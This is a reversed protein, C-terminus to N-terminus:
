VTQSSTQEVIATPQKEGILWMELLRYYDDLSARDLWEDPAHRGGGYPELLICPIDYVAFHRADTGGFSDQYQPETGHVAKYAALFTQIAPHTKDFIVPEGTQTFLVEVRSAVALEHIRRDFRTLESKDFSRVDMLATAHDAVQNVAQGGNIANVSLTTGEPSVFPFEARIAQCVDLIRQVANDGEQPRSGHATKGHAELKVGYFGKARQEIHWNDGGDPIFVVHPRIGSKLIDVMSDGGLEEDTTFLLGINLEGLMDAHRDLFELYCAAAFKMDYVGRGILKSGNQRLTYLEHSGPVVDLHAVLLIDPTKTAKTSAFLWPHTENNHLATHLGHATLRQYVYEIISSCAAANDSTSPIAILEALTTELHSPM